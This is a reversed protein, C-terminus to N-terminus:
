GRRSENQVRSLRALSPSEDYRSVTDDHSMHVVGYALALERGCRAAEQDHLACARGSHDSPEGHRIQLSLINAEHYYITKLLNVTSGM